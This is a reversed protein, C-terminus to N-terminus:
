AINTIVTNINFGRSALFAASPVSVYRWPCRLRYVLNAYPSIVSGLDLRRFRGDGLKCFQDEGLDWNEATEAAM